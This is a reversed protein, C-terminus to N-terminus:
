VLEEIFSEVIDGVQWGHFNKCMFACEYGTAVERVAKKDRQLSVIEDEGIKLKGRYGVVRGQRNITGETVYCGAIIGRDKLVFIKRIELKGIRKIVKVAKKTRLIESELYETLRYIIDFQKIEVKKNQALDAANRDIRVTFAVIMANSDFARVVDGETVDGVSSSLVRLRKKLEQNKESLQSILQLVADSSGQTDTKVIINMSKGFEQDVASQDQSGTMLLTKKVMNNKAKAYEDIGVVKLVDGSSPLSNCGVLQVPVSPGVETVKEGSPKILLRVKGYASDSVFMDGVKLTGCLPIVTAVPGFGRDVRSELVFLQAPVTADAFVDMLQTQLVIMELLDDVGQGTKASIGVMVTSGGWDESLLGNDALQRKIRDFDEPTHAKDVKNVAVIVPLNAKQAQALAEITQPKVGDDVAVILVVLDTVSVGRDRLATFAAHGPTDIFVIKGHSCEVEYAGLHQTIGGKEKAAVSSKRLFDLLTTKGHDVHGMVVVVPWRRVLNGGEGRIMLSRLASEGDTVVPDISTVSINLAVGLEKIRDVPVIDNLSFPLGKKLLELILLGAPKGMMIALDSLGVGGSITIATVDKVVLQSDKTNKTRRPGFRRRRFPRSAASSAQSDAEEAIYDEVSFANNVSYKTSTRHVADRRLVVGEILSSDFNEVKASSDKKTQVQHVNSSKAGSTNNVFENKKIKKELFKIGGEPIFSVYKKVCFKFRQYFRLTV